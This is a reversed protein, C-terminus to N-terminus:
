RIQRTLSRDEMLGHETCYYYLIGGHMKPIRGAAEQEPYLRLLFLRDATVYAIFSIHHSRNMDHPCTIYYDDEVEEVLLRHMEDAQRPELKTLHRGCCSIDADGTSTVVGGCDGCVYFKIRKMNGRDKDNPRLNGALIGEINVGLLKSLDGLLSVDPGGLGREWKSVAKDTVGLQEALQLQTMRKEKRLSCILKGVQINDIQIVESIYSLSM